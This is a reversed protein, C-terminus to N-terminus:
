WKGRVKAREWHKGYRLPPILLSRIPGGSIENHKIEREKFISRCRDGLGKM